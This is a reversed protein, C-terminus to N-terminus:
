GSPPAMFTALASQGAALYPSRQADTTAAAYSESLIGMEFAPRAAIFTIIGVLTVALFTATLAPSTRWLAAGLALEVPISVVVSVVMLLEFALLGLLPSRQFLAFWDVVTEPLGTVFFVGAHLVTLVAV